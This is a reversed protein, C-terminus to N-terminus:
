RVRLKCTKQFNVLSDAISEALQQRYFSNKLYREEAANSIYGIEILIAPIHTNKLVFFNRGIIGRNKLNLERPTLSSICKALALSKSHNEAYIMDLLIARVNKSSYDVALNKFLYDGARSSSLKALDSDTLERPCYIEFGQIRRAKNANAHISIFLDAASTNAIESRRPLPIFKDSDRSMVVEIGRAELENRLRKAVDLTIDKEKLGHRGIAGPDKGGHGADLVVKGIPAVGILSPAKETIPRAKILRSIVEERFGLPVVVMGKYFVPVSKIKSARGNILLYSAGVLVRAQLDDKKLTAVQAFNDWQWDIGKLECLSKLSVYERGSINFTPLNLEERPLTACGYFFILGLLFIFFSTKKSIM